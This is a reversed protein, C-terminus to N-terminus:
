QKQIGRLYRRELIRNEMKSFDMYARMTLSEFRHRMFAINDALIARDKVVRAKLSESATNLIVLDLHDTHLIDTLHGLIEM